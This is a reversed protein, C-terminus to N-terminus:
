FELKILRTTLYSKLQDLSTKRMDGLETLQNLLHQKSIYAKKLLILLSTLIMLLEIKKTAPKLTRVKNRM